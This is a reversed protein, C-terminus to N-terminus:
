LIPVIIASKKRYQYPWGTAWRMYINKKKNAAVNINKYTKQALVNQNNDLLAVDVDYSGQQVKLRSMWVTHPLSDWGRVDAKELLHTLVLSGFQAIYNGQQEANNQVAQNKVVRAIARAKIAPLRESLTARTVSDLDHIKEAFIIKNNIKIRVKVVLHPNFKKIQPLSIKLQRLKNRSHATVVLSSEIKNAIFGEDFVFVLESNKASESKNKINFTKAYRQYLTDAGSRKAARLLSSKLQEPITLKYLDEKYCQYAKDYTVRASNWDDISEFIIGSLYNAYPDCKYVPSDAERKKDALATLRVDIQRAIVAANEVEGKELYNLAQYIHLMINEFTDGKYDSVTDNVLVSAISKTVSTTYLEDIKSKAQEFAENSQSYNGALKLLNGKELYYLVIDSPKYDEPNLTNLAQKPKQEIIAKKIGNVNELHLTTCASLSVAMILYVIFQIYM